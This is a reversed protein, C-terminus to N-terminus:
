IVLETSTIPTAKIKDNELNKQEGEALTRLVDARAKDTDAETKPIEAATKAAQAQRLVADGQDKAVRAAQGEFQLEQLAQQQQIQEPTPEPQLMDLLKQKDAQKINLYPVVVPYISQGTLSAVRDAMTLMTNLTEQKQTASTPAEGIDVDYEEALKDSALVEFRAAGDEGIIKILRGESNEALIRLFTINQRAREKQYLTIADFYCGLTSVVQNIRQSELLASVQSSQANGLFEKNIGTVEGMADNSITFINEYGSPLSAQAKPQISGKQLAGDNVRIAAKTTAWQQEFRAFDEVSSEEYMVGGKSNSAIVYLMETLSKNAYRSPEKLADVMGFWRKNEYDYDGTKFKITFGQQDPSRFKMLINDSTIIATYYEKKLHRQYEIDALGFREFVAQMDKRISPTMVLYEAFPDFEFYDEVMEPSAEEERRMRMLEMVQALQNVLFPDELEFLPNRARYYTELEWYQYYYVQVLDEETSGYGFAIKDYLGGDPNYTYSTEDGKYSEFDDPQTGPFRKVAEDRNFKKRRYVWRSDLLNSERAQPDWFVDNFQINEGKIEGDPNEEYLINVDVAGYGAILMDRDQHSEIQDMNANERAYDSVGNLYTSLEQQQQNDFMRAQYQPKRRLQVMFGVVADIYPKVKNFIVMSRRAKDTVTATYAMADGAHFAYNNRAETHQEDLASESINKHKNWQELLERDNKLPM